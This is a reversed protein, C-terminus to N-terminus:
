IHLKRAVLGAITKVLETLNSGYSIQVCKHKAGLEDYLTLDVMKCKDPDSEFVCSLILDRSNFDSCFTLAPMILEKERVIKTTTIVGYQSFEEVSQHIM